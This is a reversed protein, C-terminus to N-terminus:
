KVFLSLFLKLLIKNSLKHKNILKYCIFLRLFSNGLENQLAYFRALDIGKDISTQLYKLEEVELETKPHKENVFNYLWIQESKLAKLKDDTNKSSSITLNNVRYCFVPINTNAVGNPYSCAFTSIDDAGWAFPLSYFGGEKILRSRRFSFDGIYQKRMSLRAKIYSYSSELQPREELICILDGNDDIQRVRGHILDVDPNNIILNEYESLCNPMLMDDDGMCIIWEGTAYSLCINWNDVVDKAGCNKDNRYFQIRDDDFNSVIHDLNEPSCDDVIILEFNRYTQRLVSSIADYLYKGKYAPILISFKM